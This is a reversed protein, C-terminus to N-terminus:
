GEEEEKLQLTGLKRDRDAEGVRDAVMSLGESGLLPRNGMLM